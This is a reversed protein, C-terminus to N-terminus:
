NDARPNRLGFRRFPSPAIGREAKSISRGHVEGASGHAADMDVLAITAVIIGVPELDPDALLDAADELGDALPHPPPSRDLGHDAM